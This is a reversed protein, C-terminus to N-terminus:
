TAVHIRRTGASYQLFTPASHLCQSNVVLIRRPNRSPLPSSSVPGVGDTWVPDYTLTHRSCIICLWMSILLPDGQYEISKAFEFYTAEYRRGFFAM